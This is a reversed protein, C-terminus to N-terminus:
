EGAKSSTFLLGNKSTKMGNILHPLSLLTYQGVVHQFIQEKGKSINVFLKVTM